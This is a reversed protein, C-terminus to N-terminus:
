WMVHDCIKTANNICTHDCKFSRGKGPTVFFITNCTGASVYSDDFSGPKPIVLGDIQNLSADKEFM